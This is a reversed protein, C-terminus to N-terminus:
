VLSIDVLAAFPVLALACLAQNLRVELVAAATVSGYWDLYINLHKICTSLTWLVVNCDELIVMVVLDPYGCAQM